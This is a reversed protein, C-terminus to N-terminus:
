VTTCKPEKIPEGVLFQFVPEDEPYIVSRIFWEAYHFATMIYEMPAWKTAVMFDAHPAVWLPIGYYKGHHTFGEALAEKSTMYGLM